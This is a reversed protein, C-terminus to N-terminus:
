SLQPTSSDTTAADGVDRRSTPCGIRFLLVFEGKISPRDSLVKRLESVPGRLFEEHLKTLERALVIHQAPGFVAEIDALTALIRHPAEYFIHLTGVAPGEVGRLASASREARSSLNMPTHEI